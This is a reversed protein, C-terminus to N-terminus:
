YRRWRLRQWTHPSQARGMNWAGFRRRFEMSRHSRSDCPSFMTHTYLQSNLQLNSIILDMCNINEYSYLLMVVSKAVLVSIEFQSKAAWGKTKAKGMSLQRENGSNTRKDRQRRQHIKWREHQCRSREQVESEFQWLQKCHVKWYLRSQVKTDAGAEHFVSVFHEIKINEPLFTM